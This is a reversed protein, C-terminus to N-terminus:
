MRLRAARLKRPTCILVRPPELSLGPKLNLSDKAAPQLLTCLLEATNKNLGHKASLYQLKCMYLVVRLPHVNYM